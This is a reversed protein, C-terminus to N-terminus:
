RATDEGAEGSLGDLVARAQDYTEYEAVISDGDVPIIGHIAWTDTRIEIVDGEITVNEDILEHLFELQRDPQEGPTDNMTRHGDSGDPDFPDVIAGGPV